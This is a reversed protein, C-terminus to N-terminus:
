STEGDPLAPAVPWPRALPRLRGIGARAYVATAAHSRHRLAQAIAAMPVKAGIM